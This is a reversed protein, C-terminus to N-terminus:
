KPHFITVNRHKARLGQVVGWVRDLVTGAKARSPLAIIRDGQEAWGIVEKIHTGVPFQTVQTEIKELDIRHLHQLYREPAETGYAPILIQLKCDSPLLAKIDGTTAEKQLLTIPKRSPLIVIKFPTTM